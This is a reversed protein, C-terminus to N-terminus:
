SRSTEHLKPRVAVLMVEEGLHAGLSCALGELSQMAYAALYDFATNSMKEGRDARQILRSAYWIARMMRSPTRLRQVRMGGREVCARLTRVNFCHIHRPPELGRWAERFVRHGIGDINPTLVILKGGPKLLQRCQDVLDSPVHVHEIVHSLTVVDFSGAAFGADALLGEKVTLGFHERAFQAAVTDMEHGVTDWGLSKMCALFAGNGCGIDLIRGRESARLGLVRMSAGQGMGPLLGLTWALVADMPGKRLQSYGFRIALVADQVRRIGATVGHLLRRSLSTNRVHAQFASGAATVGHTYYTRYVKAIDGPTPRPDLWMLSCSPCDNMGWSGPAGFTHDRLTSYRAQGQTSCVPCLPVQEIQIDDIFPM